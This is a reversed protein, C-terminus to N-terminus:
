KRFHHLIPAWPTWHLQRGFDMRSAELSALNFLLCKQLGRPCRLSKKQSAMQSGLITGFGKHIRMRSAVSISSRKSMTKPRRPCWNKLTKKLRRLSFHYAIGVLTVFDFAEFVDPKECDSQMKAINIICSSLKCFGEKDPDTM